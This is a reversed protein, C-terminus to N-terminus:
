HNAGAAYQGYQSTGPAANLTTVYNYAAVAASPGGALVLGTLGGAAGVLTVIPLVAVVCGLSIVLCSAGALALGVGVGAVAGIATGILSGVSTSISVTNILDNMALQNELPSAVPRVSTRDLGSVDPVLTLTRADGSIEPRIPLQRGDVEAALPLTDLVHGLADSM